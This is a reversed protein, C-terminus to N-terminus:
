KCIFIENIKGNSESNQTQKIHPKIEEIFIISTSDDEDTTQHSQQNLIDLLSSGSSLIIPNILSNNSIPLEACKSSM